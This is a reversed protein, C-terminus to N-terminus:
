YVLLHSYLSTIRSEPVGLEKAANIITNQNGYTSVLLKMDNNEWHIQKLIQPHSIPIGRWSHGVKMPDSDILHFSRRSSQFLDTKHFLIETHMGAGWVCFQGLSPLETIVKQVDRKARIMSELVNELYVADDLGSSTALPLQYKNHRAVIRFGNYGSMEQSDILEWGGKELIKLLTRRSFHTLHQTSFFGNIDNTTGNELVPVEVVLQTEEGSIQKLRALVGAPDTVHELVHFMTIVDPSLPTSFDEFAGHILELKPDRINGRDVAPRDIDVGIRNMSDPLSSLFKGDFCGVDLLTNGSKLMGRKALWEIQEAQRGQTAGYSQGAEAFLIEFGKATYSPNKFCLTCADCVVDDINVRNSITDKDTFFQLSHYSHVSHFLDTGCLPCGRLELLEKNIQEPCEKNVIKFQM